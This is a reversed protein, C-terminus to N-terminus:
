SRAYVPNSTSFSVEGLGFLIRERMTTEGVGINKRRVDEEVQALIGYKAAWEPLVEAHVWDKGQHNERQRLYEDFFQM